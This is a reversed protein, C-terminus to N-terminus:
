KKKGMNQMMWQAIFPSVGFQQALQDVMGKEHDVYPAPRPLMGQPFLMENLRGTGGEQAQQGMLLPNMVFPMQNLGETATRADQRYKNWDTM